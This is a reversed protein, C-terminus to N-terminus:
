GAQHIHVDQQPYPISIGERDFEEKVEKIVDWHVQWYDDTQVWPRCIFNVSSDALEHLKILPEPEELVMEHRSVVRELIAKAKDADDEYGIGFIMDVRRIDSASANTIVQGWVNRNPVLVVKNDFTRITTSVLTVSDIKGSVGGVEVVNGVDFPRYILLMIGSAFNGLTDQLAFGIIFSAGGIVALLAGVNVGVTGLAVLLGVCMVARFSIKIVFQELLESFRDSLQAARRVVQRVFRAIIWFIFLIACFKLAQLGWKIGGEKAVIWGAFADWTAGADTVDVQAGGVAKAYAMFETVDGGKAELEALVLKFRTIVAAKAERLQVLKGASGSGSQITLESVQMVKGRVIDLWAKAEIGLEDKTLPQLLLRLNKEPIDERHGHATVLAPQESDASPAEAKAQNGRASSLGSLVCLFAVVPLLLRDNM